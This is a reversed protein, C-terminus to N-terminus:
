DEGRQVVPSPTLYGAMGAPVPAELIGELDDLEVAERAAQGATAPDLLSELEPLSMGPDSFARANGRARMDRITRDLKALYRSREASARIDAETYATM